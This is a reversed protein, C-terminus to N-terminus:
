NPKTERSPAKYVRLPDYTSQNHVMSWALQAMKRAVTCIAQIKAHGKALERDYQQKFPSDKVRISSQAALFLLRRMEGDGDKTLGLQGKRKGSQNVAIDLGIYAVFQAPKTFQKHILRSVVATSVVPGFGPVQKLKPIMAFQPDDKVLAAITKDLKAIREQLESVTDLLAEAVMPSSQAQLKMAAVTRSLLKRYSLHQDIRDVAESKLHYAWLPRSNAFLALGLSDIPDTKARPQVSRNFSKARKGPALLVTLGAGTAQEILVNGYRGTPEIALSAGSVGEESNIFTQRWKISSEAADVLSCVLTGKSVDIGAFIKTSTSEFQTNEMHHKSEASQGCGQSGNFTERANAAAITNKM